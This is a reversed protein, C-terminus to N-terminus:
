QEEGRRSWITITEQFLVYYIFSICYKRRLEDKSTTGHEAQRLLLNPFQVQPAPKIFLSNESM